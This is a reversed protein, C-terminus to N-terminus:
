ERTMSRIADIDRRIREVGCDEPYVNEVVAWEVDFKRATLIGDRSDFPEDGNFAHVHLVKLRRGLKEIFEPIDLGFRPLQGIHLEMGVLLPDTNELLLDMGRKGDFVESFEFDHNHYLLDFGNQKLKAGIENLSDAVRLYNERSGREEELLYHCIVTKNGLVYNYEMVHDLDDRLSAWYNHTGCCTVGAANMIKRYSLAPVDYYSYLELGDIGADCALKVADQYRGANVLPSLSYLQMGTKM